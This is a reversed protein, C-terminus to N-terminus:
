SLKKNKFKDRYIMLQNDVMSRVLSGLSILMDKRQEFAKVVIEVTDIMAEIDDVSKKMEIYEQHLDEAGEESVYYKNFRNEIAVNTPKANNATMGSDINESFIEESLNEKIISVWVDFKQQVEQKQKKLKRLLTAWRSYYLPQTDMAKTLAFPDDWKDGLTIQEALSPDDVDLTVDLLDVAEDIKAQILKSYDLSDSKKGVKGVSKLNPM